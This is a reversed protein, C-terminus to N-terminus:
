LRALDVLVNKDELNKPKWCNLVLGIVRPSSWLRYINKKGLTNFKQGLNKVAWFITTVVRIKPLIPM